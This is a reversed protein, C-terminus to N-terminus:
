TTPWLRRWSPLLASSASAPRGARSRATSTACSKRCWTPPSAPSPRQQRWRIGRGGPVQSLTPPATLERRVGLQRWCCGATRAEGLFPQLQLQLAHSCPTPAPEAARPAAQLNPPSTQANAAAGRRPESALQLTLATPEQGTPVAAAKRVVLCATSSFAAGRMNVAACRWPLDLRSSSFLSTTIQSQDQPQLVRARSSLASACDHQGELLLLLPLRRHSGCGCRCRGAPRPPLRRWRPSPGRPKARPPPPPPARPPPTRPRCRPPHPAARGPGPGLFVGCERDRRRLM